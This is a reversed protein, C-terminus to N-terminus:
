SSFLYKLVKRVRRGLRAKVAFWLKLLLNRSLWAFSTSTTIWPHTREFDVKFTRIELAKRFKRRFIQRIGIAHRTEAFVILTQIPSLNKNRAIKTALDQEDRAQVTIIHNSFDDDAIRGALFNKQLQIDDESGNEYSALLFFTDPKSIQMSTQWRELAKELAKQSAASLTEANLSGYPM